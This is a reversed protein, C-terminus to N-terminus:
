VHGQAQTSLFFACEEAYCRLAAFGFLGRSFPVKLGEVALLLMPSGFISECTFYAEPLNFSLWVVNKAEGVRHRPM